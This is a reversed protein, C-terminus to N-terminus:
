GNGIRILIFIIWFSDYLAHSIILPWIRGFKYYFISAIFSMIGVSVMGATGQYLHVASMLLSSFLIALWAGTRGPWAMWLRDLVFTRSVEEFGAVGVWVVPGLWLLALLPNDALGEMLIGMHGSSRSPLWQYITFRNVFALLVFIATLILGGGIDTWIMGAKRNLNKPSKRCFKRYVFLIWILAGSGVLLPYLMMEALSYPQKRSTHMVFTFVFPPLVGIVIMLIQFLANQRNSTM